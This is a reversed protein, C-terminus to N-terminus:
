PASSFPRGYQITSFGQPVAQPISPYTIDTHTNWQSPCSEKRNWWINKSQAPFLCTRVVKLKLLLMAVFHLVPLVWSVWLCFWTLWLVSVNSSENLEDWLSSDSTGLAAAIKTAWYVPESLCILSRELNSLHMQLTSWTPFHPTQDNEMHKWIKRFSFFLLLYRTTVLPMRVNTWM